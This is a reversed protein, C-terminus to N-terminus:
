CKRAAIYALQLGMQTSVDGFVSGLAGTICEPSNGTFVLFFNMCHSSWSMTSTRSRWPMMFGRCSMSCRSSYFFRLSYTELMRHSIGISDKLRGVFLDVLETVLEAGRANLQGEKAVTELKQVATSYRTLLVQGVPSNERFTCYILETSDM